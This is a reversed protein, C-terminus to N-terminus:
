SAGHLSAPSSKRMVVIDQHGNLGGEIHGLVALYRGWHRQVYDVTHFTTQYFDPLGDVKFRGKRDTRYVIGDRQLCAIEAPTCSDTTFRGHTTALLVGGPKLLRRMEALWEDQAPADLHTFLSVSYIVDFMDSAYATPTAAANTSFRALSSLNESAWGIAEADIDSGHLTCSETAGALESIVRGPGCAFDLVTLHKLVVGHAGLTEVLCRAINRGNALYSASDFARHVRYRLMPPPLGRAAVGPDVRNARALQVRFGVYNVAGALWYLPAIRKAMQRLRQMMDM